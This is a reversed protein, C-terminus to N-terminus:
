TPRPNSLSRGCSRRGKEHARHIVTPTRAIAGAHCLIPRMEDFTVLTLTHRESIVLRRVDSGGLDGAHRTVAAHFLTRRIREEEAHGVREFSEQRIFIAYLFNAYPTTRGSMGTARLLGVPLVHATESEDVNVEITAPITM